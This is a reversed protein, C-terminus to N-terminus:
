LNYREPAHVAPTSSAAAPATQFATTNMALSRTKLHRVTSIPARACM